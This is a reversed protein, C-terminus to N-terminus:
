KPELYNKMTIPFILNCLNKTIKQSLKPSNFISAGELARELGFLHVEFNRIELQNPNKGPHFKNNISSKHLVSL